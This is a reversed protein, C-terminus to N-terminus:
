EGGSKLPKIITEYCSRCDAAAAQAIRASERYGGRKLRAAYEDMRRLSEEYDFEM